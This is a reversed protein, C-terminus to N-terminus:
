QAQVTQAGGPHVCVFRRDGLKMSGGRLCYRLYGDEYNYRNIKEILPNRPSITHFNGVYFLM